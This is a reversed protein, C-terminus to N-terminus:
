PTEKVETVNGTMFEYLFMLNCLAHAMHSLGSEKDYVEGSRFLLVHRWYADKYRQVANPVTKWGGETYKAAGFALVEAVALVATSPTPFAPMWRYSLELVEDVSVPPGVARARNIVYEAWPVSLSSVLPKGADYKVGAKSDGNDSKM